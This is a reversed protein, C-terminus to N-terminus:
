EASSKAFANVNTQIRSKKRFDEVWNEFVEYSRAQTPSVNKAEVKAEETKMDKFRILYAQGMDRVVHDLLPKKKSVEFAAKSVVPSTLKPIAEQGIAFFGTEQWNLGLSKLRAQLQSEDSKKLLDGLESLVKESQDMELLKRAIQTKVSDLTATKKAKHDLVRILHYGFNSKVPESIKGTALSFAANEFEPVMRGRGFYGLDGGKTKSGDDESEKQAVKAFNDASLGAKLKMAKDLAAKESSSDGAKFKILIHQAHVQEDENYQSSNTKFYDEVRSQFEKKALNSNVDADTVTKNLSEPSIQLYALNIKTSSLEKEKQKEYSTLATSMEIMRRARFSERDKRVKSEFESAQTRTQDLYAQYYERMFRGDKQFAPIDKTIIDRIEADTSLVGAENAAQAVLEMEVLDQVARQLIMQRQPGLDMGKFYMSYMQEIRKAEMSVDAMSIPTSNVSAAEGAEAGMGAQRTAVGWFIFVVIIAGFLIFAVTSKLSFEGAFFHESQKFYKKFM